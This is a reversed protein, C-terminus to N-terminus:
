CNKEVVERADEQVLEIDVDLIDFTDGVISKIRSIKDFFAKDEVLKSFEKALDMISVEVIRCGKSILGYAKLSYIISGWFSKIAEEFKGNEILNDAKELEKLASDVYVVHMPVRRLNELKEITIKDGFILEVRCPNIQDQYIICKVHWKGNYYFSEIGIWTDIKSADIKSKAAKRLEELIELKM